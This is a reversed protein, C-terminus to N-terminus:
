ALLLYITSYVTGLVMLAALVISTIRIALGKNKM